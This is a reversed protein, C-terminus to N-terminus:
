GAYRGPQRDDGLAFKKKSIAAGPSPREMMALWAVRWRGVKSTADVRRPMGAVGKTASGCQTDGLVFGQTRTSGLKIVPRVETQRAM